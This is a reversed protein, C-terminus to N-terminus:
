GRALKRRHQLNAIINAFHSQPKSRTLFWTSSWLWKQSAHIPDIVERFIHAASASGFDADHTRFDSHSLTKDTPQLARASHNKRHCLISQSSSHISTSSLNIWNHSNSTIKHPSGWKQNYLLLRWDIAVEDRKCFRNPASYQIERTFFDNATTNWINVILYYAVKTITENKWSTANWRWDKITSSYIYFYNELFLYPSNLQISHLHIKTFCDFLKLSWWASLHAYTKTLHFNFFNACLM